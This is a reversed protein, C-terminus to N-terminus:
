KPVENVYVNFQILTAEEPPKDRYGFRQKSLWIMMGTDGNMAKLFMRHKLSGNGQLRGKKVRESYKSYITDPNVGVTAAIEEITFDQSAMEELKQEDLVVPPRGVKNPAVPLNSPSKTKSRKKAMHPGQIM